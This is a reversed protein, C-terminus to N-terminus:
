LLYTGDSTLTSPTIAIAVSFGMSGMLQLLYIATGILDHSCGKLSMFIDIKYSISGDEKMLQVKSTM